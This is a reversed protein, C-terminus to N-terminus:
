NRLLPVLLGLRSTGRVFGRRRDDDFAAAQEQALSLRNAISRKASRNNNRGTM